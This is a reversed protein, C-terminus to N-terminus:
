SSTVVFEKETKVNVSREVLGREGVIALLYLSHRDDEGLPLSYDIQFGQWVFIFRSILGAVLTVGAVRPLFWLICVLFALFIMVFQQGLDAWHAFRRIGRMSDVYGAQFAVLELKDPWLLMTGGVCICWPIFCTIKILSITMASSSLNESRLFWLPDEYDEDPVTLACDLSTDLACDDSTAHTEDIEKIFKPSSVCSGGSVERSIEGFPVDIPQNLLDYTSSKCWLTDEAPTTSASSVKSTGYGPISLMDEAGNASSSKTAKSLISLGGQKFRFYDVFSVDGNAVLFRSASSGSSSVGTVGIDNVDVPTALSSGFPSDHTEESDSSHGRKVFNPDSAEGVGVLASTFTNSKAM